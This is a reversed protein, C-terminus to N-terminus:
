IKGEKEKNDNCLRCTCLYIFETHQYLYLTSLRNLTVQTHIIEPSAVQSNALVSPTDDRPFVLKGVNLM